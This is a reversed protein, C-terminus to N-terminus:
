DVGVVINDVITLYWYVSSLSTVVSLVGGGHHQGGDDPVWYVSSLSTVVSLVGGGCHQICLDPVRYTSSLSMVVSLGGRWDVGM